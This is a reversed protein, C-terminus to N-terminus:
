KLVSLILLAKGFFALLENIFVSIWNLWKRFFDVKLELLNKLIPHYLLLLLLLEQQLLLLHCIDLSKWQCFLLFVISEVDTINKGLANWFGFIIKSMESWPWHWTLLRLTTRWNTVISCKCHSFLFIIFSIVSNGFLLLLECVKQFFILKLLLNGLLLSHLTGLNLLLTLSSVISNFCDFLALKFFLHNVLLSTLHELPVSLLYPEAFFYIFQCAVKFFVFKEFFLFLEFFVFDLFNVLLM